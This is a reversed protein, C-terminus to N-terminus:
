QQAWDVHLGRDDPNICRLLAAFYPWFVANGLRTTTPRSPPTHEPILHAVTSYLPQRPLQSTANRDKCAYFAKTQKVTNIKLAASNAHEWTIAILTCPTLFCRWMDGYQHVFGAQPTWMATRCSWERILNLSDLKHLQVLQPSSLVASSTNSFPFNLSLTAPAKSIFLTFLRIIEEARCINQYDFSFQLTPHPV